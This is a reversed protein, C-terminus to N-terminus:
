APPWHRAFVARVAPEDETARLAAFFEPRQVQLHARSGSWKSVVAALLALASLRGAGACASGYQDAFLEWLRHLRARTGQRIREQVAADGDADACWRQPYDIVGIAAYCNAAVYVLGSLAQAREGAEAPLLGSGPAADLGLHILIAASESIARGDPLRLTPIQQLPNIRSLAELGPSPQWSAAEVLRHPLGALVLAAEIAASGTGRSGYLEYM